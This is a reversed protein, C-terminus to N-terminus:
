EHTATTQPMSTAITLGSITCHLTTAENFALPLSVFRSQLTKKQSEMYDLRRHVTSANSEFSNLRRQYREFAKEALTSSALEIRYRMSGKKKGFPLSAGIVPLYQREVSSKGPNNRDSATVV